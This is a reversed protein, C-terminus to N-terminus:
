GGATPFAVEGAAGAAESGFAAEPAGALATVKSIIGVDFAFAVAVEFATGFAESMAMAASVSPLMNAASRRALQQYKHHNTECNGVQSNDGTM